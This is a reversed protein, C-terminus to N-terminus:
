ITQIHSDCISFLFEASPEGATVEFKQDRFRVKSLLIPRALRVPWSSSMYIILGWQGGRFSLKRARLVM